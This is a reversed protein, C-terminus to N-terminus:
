FNSTVINQVATRIVLYEHYLGKRKQDIGDLIDKVIEDLAVDSAIKETIVNFGIVITPTLDKPIAYRTDYYIAIKQIIDILNFYESM